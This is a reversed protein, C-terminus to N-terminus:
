LIPLFSETRLLFFTGSLQLTIKSCSPGGHEQFGLFDSREDMVAGAVSTSKENSLRVTDTAVSTPSNLEVKSFSADKSQSLLSREVNKHAIQPGQTTVEMVDDASRESGGSLQPCEHREFPRSTCGFSSRNVTIILDFDSSDVKYLCSLSKLAKILRQVRLLCDPQSPINGGKLVVSIDVITEMSELYRLPLLGQLEYDEWLLTGVPKDSTKGLSLAPKHELCGQGDGNLCRSLLVCAERWFTCQLRDGEENVRIQEILDPYSALWMCFVVIAPFLHSNYPQQAKASHHMLQSVFQFAAKTAEGAHPAHEACSSPVGSRKKKRGVNHISLILSVLLHLVTSSKNKSSNSKEVTFTPAVLPHDQSLLIHLERLISSM